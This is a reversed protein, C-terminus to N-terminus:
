SLIPCCGRESVLISLGDNYAAQCGGLHEQAKSGFHSPLFLTFIRGLFISFTM